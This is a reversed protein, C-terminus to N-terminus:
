RMRAPGRSMRIASIAALDHALYMADLWPAEAFPRGARLGRWRDIKMTPSRENFEEIALLEGAWRHNHSESLDDFYMAVRRLRPVDIRTLIRLVDVTSSYFDVDVALFGLPAGFPTSEIKARIEGLVLTTREHLKVRLAPVDMAYDGMQWVDPHDRYDGTGQPMGRGTDFGYVAVNIGSEREVADAYQQLTLLGYGEAVGFEIATIAGHGEERARDVAYLLGALYQPRNAAGWRDKTRLSCPLCRVALQALRRFPPEMMLAGLISM